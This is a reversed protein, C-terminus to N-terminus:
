NRDTMQTALVIEKDDPLHYYRLFGDSLSIVSYPQQNTNIHKRINNNMGNANFSPVNQQNKTRFVNTNFNM